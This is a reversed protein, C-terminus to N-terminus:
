EVTRLDKVTVSFEEDATGLSYDIFVDTPFGQSGDYSVTIEDADQDIADQIVEFLQEVSHYNEPARDVMAVQDFASTITGNEVEILTPNTYEPLCLCSRQYTFQYRSLAAADWLAQAAELPQQRPAADLKSDADAPAAADAAQPADAPAADATESGSTDDGCGTALAAALVLCLSATATRLTNNRM